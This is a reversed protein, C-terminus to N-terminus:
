GDWHGAIYSMSPPWKHVHSPVDLCRTSKEVNSCDMVIPSRMSRDTGEISLKIHLHIRTM